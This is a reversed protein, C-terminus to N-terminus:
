INSYYSLEVRATSPAGYTLFNLLGDMRSTPLWTVRRENARRDAVCAYRHLIVLDVPIIGCAVRTTKSPFDCPWGSLFFFLLLLTSDKEVNNKVDASVQIVSFSSSHTILFLPSSNRQFFFMFIEHSRHPFHSISAALLSRGELHFHAAIFFSAFLFM